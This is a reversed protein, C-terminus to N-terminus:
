LVFSEDDEPQWIFEQLKGVPVVITRGNAFGVAVTDRGPAPKALDPGGVRAMGASTEFLVVTRGPDPLDALCRGAVHVNMAITRGRPLGTHRRDIYPLLARPFAAAKPLCGDHADAYVQAARLMHEVAEVTQRPAPRVTQVGMSVEVRGRRDASAMLAVLMGCLALGILLGVVSAGIGALALGRGRIRGGSAGIRGLAVVGFVIGLIATLGASCLSLVGLVLSAVAYGTTAPRGPDAPPGGDATPLAPPPLPPPPPPPPPAPSEAPADAAAPKAARPSRRKRPTGSTTSRKRPRKAM